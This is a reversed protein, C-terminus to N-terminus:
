LLNYGSPLGGEFLTQANSVMFYQQYIRLIQGARDSDDPYLFLTLNKRIDTKDFSIGDEVISEDVTEVDFLHLKNTRNDYGTVEIDYMRSTLTFNRYPIQYTVNTKSLWSTNEM